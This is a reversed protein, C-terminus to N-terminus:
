PLAYELFRPFHTLFIEVRETRTAGSHITVKSLELIPGDVRNVSVFVSLICDNEEPYIVVM